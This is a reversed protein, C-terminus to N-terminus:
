CACIGTPRPTCGTSLIRGPFICGTRPFKPLSSASSRNRKRAWSNNWLLFLQRQWSERRTLKSYGTGAHLRGGPGGALAIQRQGTSHAAGSTAGARLSRGFGSELGPGQRRSDGSFLRARRIRPPLRSRSANPSCSGSGIAFWSAIRPAYRRPARFSRCRTVKTAWASCCWISALSSAM